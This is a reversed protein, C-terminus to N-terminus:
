QLKDFTEQVENVVMQTILRCKSVCSSEIYKRV